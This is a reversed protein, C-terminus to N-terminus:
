KTHRNPLGISWRIMDGLIPYIDNSKAGFRMTQANSDYLGIDRNVGEDNSPLYEELKDLNFDIIEIQSLQYYRWIPNTHSFDILPINELLKSQLNAEAKRGFSFDYFLKALAKLMVPQAAVTNLKAGEKGLSPIKCISEWFKNIEDIKPEIQNPSAGSINTKNM